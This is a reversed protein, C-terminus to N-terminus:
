EDELNSAVMKILRKVSRLVSKAVASRRYSARRMVALNRRNGRIVKASRPNTMALEDRADRSPTPQTPRSLVESSSETSRSHTEPLTVATVSQARAEGNSESRPQLGAALTPARLGDQTQTPAPQNAGKALLVICFCMLALFILAGSIWALDVLALERKGEINLNPNM